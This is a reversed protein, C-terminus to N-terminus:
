TMGVMISKKNSPSERNYWCVLETRALQDAKNKMENALQKMQYETELGKLLCFFVSFVNCM